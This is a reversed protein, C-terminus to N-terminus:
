RREMARRWGDVLALQTGGLAAYRERCRAFRAADEEPAGLPRGALRADYVIWAGLLWADRDSGQLALYRELTAIAEAHRRAVAQAVALRRVLGPEDPWAAVAEVMIDVAQEGADIRLLADGLLAYVFSSGAETALATQWAGAAEDDRGGAAHCAGLYFTAPFFGPALRLTRRFEQAAVNLDGRALHALGRLFVVAVGTDSSAALAREVEVFRGARAAELAASVPGGPPPAGQAPLRDLFYGVVGPGVVQDRSFAEVGAIGAPGRLRPRPGAVVPPTAAPPRAPALPRELRFPRAVRAVARGDVMVVARATYDGPALLDTPLRAEAVRRGLTPATLGAEVAALPPATEDAAVELSVRAADLVSPVEAAVEVYGIVEDSSLRTDVSPRVDRGRAAPADALMLDGVRLQGAPTLRADVAHEVSGRRGLDDVAALKLTYRGPDLVFSALYAHTDGRPEAAASPGDVEAGVVDGRANTLSFGCPVSGAATAGEIEAAIVLRVQRGEGPYTFTAARMLLDTALLPTRLVEALVDKTARSSARADVLFHRRARVEVGARRVDVDIQRPQDGRDGAEPEFSLLYYGSLERAIRDFAARAGTAVPFLRGRTMGVLLELGQRVLVRDDNFTPSIREMSADTRQVDLGLAYLTTDAAAAARAVQEFDGRERADVFLGESLLVMTKPGSTLALRDLLARLAALSAATQQRANWYILRADAAVENTCSKVLADRSSVAGAAPTERGQLPTMLAAVECERGVVRDLTRLDQQAIALAETLGITYRGFPPTAAGIVSELARQVSRHATTFDVAPGGEPVVALAVRDAPDLRDVFRSAAELLQRGEGRRINGRDVVIVILRGGVAGANTSYHRPAAAVGRPRAASGLPVFVSSVLRRPQGDVLVTFDEAVLDRVPRGDRDVVSVDVAVLEVGTRFVPAQQDRAPQAGRAALVPLALTLLAAVPLTALANM